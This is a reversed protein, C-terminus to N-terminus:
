RRRATQYVGTWFGGTGLSSSAKAGYDPRQSNRRIKRGKKEEGEDENREEEEAEQNAQEEEQAGPSYFTALYLKYTKEAATKAARSATSDRIGKMMADVKKKGASPEVLAVGCTQAHPRVARVQQVRAEDKGM